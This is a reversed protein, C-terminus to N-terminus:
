RQRRLNRLWGLRHPVVDVNENALSYSGAACALVANGPDRIGDPSRTKPDWSPDRELRGAFNASRALAFVARSVAIYARGFAYRDFRSFNDGDLCNSADLIQRISRSEDALSYRRGHRGRILAVLKRISRQVNFTPRQVNAAIIAPGSIVDGSVKPGM